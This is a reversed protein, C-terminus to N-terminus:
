FDEKIQETTIIKSTLVDIEKRSFRSKINRLQEMMPHIEKESKVFIYKIDSPKFGLRYEFLKQNENELITSNSFEEKSLNNKVVSDFEIKPVYRWERENYFRVDKHTKKGRKFNGDYPKLFNVLNMYEDSINRTIESCHKDLAQYVNEAMESVSESINSNPNVYIIPNLKKRIGWEKTMGLGYGGYMEIHNNIQSLSIDCFCVMPIASEFGARELKDSLKIEEFCYRPVFTQELISILYEKKPTFHFLSNSSINSM